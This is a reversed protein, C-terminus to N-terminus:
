LVAGETSNVTEENNFALGAGYLTFGNVNGGTTALSFSFKQFVIDRSNPNTVTFSYLDGGPSLVGGSSNVAISPVTRFVRLGNTTVDSTTGSSITNGSDAGTGYNGNLGVNDGDYTVSLFAGFSATNSNADHSALSAKVTM